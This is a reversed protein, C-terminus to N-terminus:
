QKEHEKMWEVARKEANIKEFAFDPEVHNQALGAKMVRKDMGESVWSDKYTSNLTSERM